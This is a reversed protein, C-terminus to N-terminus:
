VKERIINANLRGLALISVADQEKLRYKANRQAELFDVREKLKQCQEKWKDMDNELERVIGEGIDLASNRVAKVVAQYLREYKERYDELEVTNLGYMLVEDVVGENGNGNHGNGMVERCHEILGSYSKYTRVKLFDMTRFDGFAEHRALIEREQGDFRKLLSVTM